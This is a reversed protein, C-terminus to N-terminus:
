RVSSSLYLASGSTSFGLRSRSCYTTSPAIFPNNVRSPSSSFAIRVSGAFRVVSSSFFTNPAAFYSCKARAKRKEGRDGAPRFQRPKAPHLTLLPNQALQSAPYRQAGTREPTVCEAPPFSPYPADVAPALQYVREASWIQRKHGRLM